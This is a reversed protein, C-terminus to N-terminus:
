ILSSMTWLEPHLSKRHIANMNVPLIGPINDTRFTDTAMTGMMLDSMTRIVSDLDDRRLVVDTLGPEREIGFLKSIRPKRLDAEVLITNLGIQAMSVALNVAITTKGESAVSSTVMMCKYGKDM